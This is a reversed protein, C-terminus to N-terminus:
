FEALGLNLKLCNFKVRKKREQRIWFKEVSAFKNIIKTFDSLYLIIKPQFM